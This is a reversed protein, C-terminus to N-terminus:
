FRPMGGGTPVITSPKVFYEQETNKYLNREMRKLAGPSAMEMMQYTVLYDWAWKTYFLSTGPVSNLLKKMAQGAVDDGTKARNFLDFITDIDGISPGLLTSIASGGHKNRLEGFILDGYLGMAGGQLMSAMITRMDTPDRVQKGAIMDKMSMAAYGFVANTLILSSMNLAVGPETVASAAGKMGRHVTPSRGYMERGLVQRGVAIPFGKLFFLHRIIEGELSGSKTGRLTVSKSGADPEVVAVRARSHFYSEFNSVIDNRAKSIRGKQGKESLKRWTSDISDLYKAFVEDPLDAVSKPTLYSKGDALKTEAQRIINWQPEDIDFQNLMRKWEDSLNSFKTNKYGALENSRQLIFTSRLKDTWPTLLNLKFYLQTLKSIAGPDINDVDFRTVATGRMGDSIYGIASLIEKQEASTRGSLLGGIAEMMGGFMNGGTYRVESGYLPIDAFASFVAKGLLTMHNLSRWAQNVKAAMANHPVFMAGSIMPWNHEKLNRTQQDYNKYRGADENKLKLAYKNIIGDINSEANPGLRRMLATQQAHRELDFVVAEMVSGRGFRRHYEVEAEATKFHLVREHSMTKGINGMGKLISNNKIETNGASTGKVHIGTSFEVFRRKIFGERNEEPVTTRTFDLHENLYASYEDEGAKAIKYQDHSRKMGRGELRGIVAGAENADVLAQDQVALIIRAANRAEEPLKNLAAEDPTKRDMAILALHIDVDNRGGSGFMPPKVYDLLNAEELLQMYTSLYRDSLAAQKVSVANKSGTRNVQAGTFLVQIGMAIDDSYHTDLFTTMRKTAEFNLLQNRKMAAKALALEKKRAQLSIEVAEEMPINEAKAYDGITEIDKAIIKADSKGIDIGQKSLSKICASVSM